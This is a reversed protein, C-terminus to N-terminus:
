ACPKLGCVEMAQRLVSEHDFALTPLERLDFWQAEAADDSGLVLDADVGENLLIAFAASRVWSDATDRPDRGGGEFDGVYVVSEFQGTLQLGTEERLERVAAERPTERGPRWPTGPEADTEVFGGPLSWRGAEAAVQNRRRILLVSVGAGDRRFVAIDAAPNALPHHLRGVRAPNSMRRLVEEFTAFSHEEQERAHVGSAGSVESLFLRRLCLNRAAQIEDNVAVGGGFFLCWADHERALRYLADSKDYISNGLVSAHTICGTEFDDPDHGLVVAGLVTYGLSVAACGAFGEVGHRTGGLILVTKGPDLKALLGTLVTEIRSKEAGSLQSWSRKWAGAISIVRKGRLLSYLDPPNIISVGIDRLRQEIAARRQALPRPVPPEALEVAAKFQTGSLVISKAHSSALQREDEKRMARYDAETSRIRDLFGEKVGCALAAGAEMAPSTRYVGYGDTGLVVAVGAEVYQGLPVSRADLGQVNNLAFNSNLNFEVLAGVDLLRDLTANNVGHIGHGIRLQVSCDGVYDAAAGINEPHSPCEGAHVRIVFRSRRASIARAFHGLLPGFAHTSNTEHGVVDLGVVAPHDAVDIIRALYDRVWHAEDHRGFSALFRLTVGTEAEIRPLDTSLIDLHSREVVQHLSLEAYEVGFAAYDRAIQWCLASFAGLPKTLPTRARYVAQMERYTAQRDLPIALGDSLRHLMTSDMEELKMERRLHIGCHRLAEPSFVAGHSLGIRLLDEPRPCGAFHAHLDTTVCGPEPSAIRSRFPQRNDSLYRTEFPTLPVVSTVLSGCSLDITAITARGVEISVTGSVTAVHGSILAVQYGRGVLRLHDFLATRLESFRYEPSSELLVNAHGPVTLDFRVRHHDGSDISVSISRMDLCVM